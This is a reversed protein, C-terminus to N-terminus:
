HHGGEKSWGPSCGASPSQALLGSGRSWGVCSRDGPGCDARCSGAMTSCRWWPRCRTCGSWTIGALCGGAPGVGRRGASGAKRAMQCSDEASSSAQRGAEAAPGTSRPSLLLADHPPCAWDRVPKELGEQELFRQGMGQDPGWTLAGAGCAPQPTAGNVTTQKKQHGLLFPVPLPKRGQM